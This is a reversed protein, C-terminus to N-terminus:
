HKNKGRKEVIELRQLVEKDASVKKYESCVKKFASNAIEIHYSTLASHLLHLDVAKDETRTSFYSLGFDVFIFNNDHVIMNSTTPDAHIIGANHIKALTSGIKQSIKALNKKNLADRVKKGEVFEMDISATSEDVNIFKPVAIQAASLTQLIKAESRTRSKRLKADIIAHRYKKETRIKRVTKGDVRLITAEAGSSIVDNM